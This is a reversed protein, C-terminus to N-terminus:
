PPLLPRGEGREELYELIADTENISGQPTSLAPVKGRPSIALFEPTQAPYTVVYEYPVGKELLALEVMNTYNSVPFGHLKLMTADRQQAVPRFGSAVARRRSKRPTRSRGPRRGRRSPKGAIQSVACAIRPRAMASGTGGAPVAGVGDSM